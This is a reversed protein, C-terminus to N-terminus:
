PVYGNVGGKPDPTDLWHDLLEFWNEVVGNAPTAGDRLFAWRGYNKGEGARPTYWRFRKTADNSSQPLVIFVGNKGGEFGPYAGMGFSAIMFQELERLV